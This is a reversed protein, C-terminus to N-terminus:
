TTLKPRADTAPESQAGDGDRAQAGAALTVAPQIGLLQRARAEITTKEACSYPRLIKAVQIATMEVNLAREAHSINSDPEFARTPDAAM